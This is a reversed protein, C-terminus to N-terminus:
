TNHETYTKGKKKLQEAALAEAKHGYKIGILVAKKQQEATLATVIGAAGGTSGAAAANVATVILTAKVDDLQTFDSMTEFVKAVKDEINERFTDTKVFTNHVKNFINKFINSINM